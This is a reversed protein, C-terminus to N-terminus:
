AGKFRKAIDQPTINVRPMKESPDRGVKILFFVPGDEKLCDKFIGEIDDESDTKYVKSIGCGKAAEALDVESSVTPQGGTSDYCENDFIIHILNKPKIRSIM